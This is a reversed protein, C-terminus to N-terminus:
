VSSLVTSVEVTDIFEEEEEEDDPDPPLPSASYSSAPSTELSSTIRGNAASTTPARHPSAERSASFCNRQTQSSAREPVTPSCVNYKVESIDSVAFKFGM